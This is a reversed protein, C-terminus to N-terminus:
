PREQEGNYMRNDNAWGGIAWLSRSENIWRHIGVVRM